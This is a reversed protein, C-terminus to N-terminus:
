HRRSHSAGRKLHFYNAKVLYFISWGSSCYNNYDYEGCVEDSNSSQGSSSCSPLPPSFPHSSSSNGSSNLCDLCLKLFCLCSAISTACLCCLSLAVLASGDINPAVLIVHCDCSLLQLCPLFDNSNTSHLSISAKFRLSLPPLSLFHSSLLFFPTM